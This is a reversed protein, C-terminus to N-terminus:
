GGLNTIEVRRNEPARPNARNLLDRAGRGSAELRTAAIGHQQVLYDRVASAREESLRQNTENAGVVDTHGVIRFNATGADPATMATGVLDLVHRADDTLRASGFEFTIQFSATYEHRAAPRPEHRPAPAAASSGTSAPQAKALPPPEPMQDINGIALGRTGPKKVPAGIQALPPCGPKNVGLAAAVECETPNKGIMVADQAAAPGASWAGIVTAACMMALTKVAQM